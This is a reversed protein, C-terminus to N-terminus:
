SLVYFRSVSLLKRTFVAQDNSSVNQWLVRTDYECLRCVSLHVVVGKLVREAALLSSCKFLPHTTLAYNHVQTFFRQQAAQRRHPGM